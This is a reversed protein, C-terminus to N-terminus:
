ISESANQLYDYDNGNNQQSPPPIFNSEQPLPHYELGKGGGAHVGASKAVCSYGMCMAVHVIM